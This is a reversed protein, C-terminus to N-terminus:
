SCPQAGPSSNIYFQFDVAQVVVLKGKPPEGYVKLVTGAFSYEADKVQEFKSTKPETSKALSYPM